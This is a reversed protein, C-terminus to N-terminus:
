VRGEKLQDITKEIRRQRTEPSKIAEIAIVLRRQKSYALGEFFSKAHSTSRSPMRETSRMGHGCGAAISSM